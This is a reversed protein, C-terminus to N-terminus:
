ARSREKHLVFKWSNSEKLGLSGLVISNGLFSDEKRNAQQQMEKGLVHSRSSCYTWPMPRRAPQGAVISGGSGHDLRSGVM